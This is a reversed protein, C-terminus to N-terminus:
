KNVDDSHVLDDGLDMSIQQVSCIQLHVEIFCLDLYNTVALYRCGVREFEGVVNMVYEFEFNDKELGIRWLSLRFIVM